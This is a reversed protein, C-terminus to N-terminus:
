GILRSGLGAERGELADAVVRGIRPGFKFGHGSCASVLVVGENSRIVFSEDPTTTYLCTETSVTEVPTGLLSGLWRETEAIGAETPEFPGNEPDVVQGHHHLGVKIGAAGHHAPVLYAVPEDWDVVVPIKPAPRMYAVQERTVTADLQFGLEKAFAVNWAGAALVLSSGTVEREGISLKAGQDVELVEAPWGYSFQAGYSRALRTTVELATVAGIAFTEEQWIATKDPLHIGLEESAVKPSIEHYSVGVHAFAEACREAGSGLFLGGTHALLTEGSEGELRRWEQLAELALEVYFPDPYALRFIRNPGHSSGRDHGAAFREVVLVSLKRRSLELAASCGAIGAGIIVVDYTDVDHTM